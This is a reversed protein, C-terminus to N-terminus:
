ETDIIHRTLSVHPEHACARNKNRRGTDASLQKRMRGLRQANQSIYDIYSSQALETVILLLMVPKKPEKTQM